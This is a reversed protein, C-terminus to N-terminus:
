MLDAIKAMRSRYINKLEVEGYFEQGRFVESVRRMGNNNGEYAAMDVQSNNDGDIILKCDEGVRQIGLKLLDITLNQAESIYVISKSGTSDFGRLDSFPLLQLKNSDILQYVGDIGGLKASLMNGVLSMLLKEDKTGPFFGLKASCRSNIPNCFVILRDYKGGEIVNLAYALSILSKGSGAKGKVMTMKNTFLSDILCSQYGDLPKIKGIANSNIKKNNFNALGAKTYKMRDILNGNEDKILLYENINLGLVNDTKDAYITALVKSNEANNVLEKYGKYNDKKNDIEFIPIGFGKCKLKMNLDNTALACEYYKACEIVIDDNNTKSIGMSVFIIKDANKEILRIARRANYSKENINKLKDLEEIVVYPITLQYKNVLDDIEINEMLVSTDIVIKEKVFDVYKVGM